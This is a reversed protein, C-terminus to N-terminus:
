GEGNQMARSLLEADTHPKANTNAPQHKVGFVGYGMWFLFIAPLLVCIILVFIVILPNQLEKAIAATDSDTAM